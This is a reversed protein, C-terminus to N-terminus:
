VESEPLPPQPQPDGVYKYSAYEHKCHGRAGADSDVWSRDSWESPNPSDQNAKQQKTKDPCDCDGVEWEIENKQPCFIFRYDILESLSGVKHESPDKNESPNIYYSKFLWVGNPSSEEFAVVSTGGPYGILRHIIPCSLGNLTRPISTTGQLEWEHSKDLDNLTKRRKEFTPLGESFTQDFYAPNVPSPTKEILITPGKYIALEYVFVWGKEGSKCAKDERNLVM